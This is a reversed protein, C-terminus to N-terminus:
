NALKREDRDIMMTYFVTGIGDVEVIRANNAVNKVKGSKTVVRCDVFVKDGVDGVDLQSLVSSHVLGRDDPHVMNKLVGGSFEM